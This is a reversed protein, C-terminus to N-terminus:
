KRLLCCGVDVSWALALHMVLGPWVSRARLALWGLLWAGAASTILEAAPAGVHDLGCALAMVLLAGRGVSARLAVLLLGRYFLETCLIILGYMGEGFASLGWPAHCAGPFIPYAVCLSPVARTAVFGLALAAMVAAVFAVRLGWSTARPLRLVCVYEKWSARDIAVALISPVLLLFILCVIANASVRTLGALEGDFWTRPLVARYPAPSSMALWRVVASALLAAALWTASRVRQRGPEGQM